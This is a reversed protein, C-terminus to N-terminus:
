FGSSVSFSYFHDITRGHKRRKKFTCISFEGMEGGIVRDVKLICEKLLVSIQMNFM